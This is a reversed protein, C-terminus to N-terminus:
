RAMIDALILERAKEDRPIFSCSFPDPRSSLTGTFTYDSPKSGGGEGRKINFAALLSAVVIFLTADVVHRGPCIRKGFGFASALNPDDRLSGDTNIFREPKFIDPEPYLTPDHLMAWSNPIVVAGKPIFFGDYIDDKMAAHPLALPTVPRWRLIEKCVADIFPLRPRDEFTPLRDRGIVSDLEDQAKQQIDPYLLMAVFFFKMASATTEAGASFISALAGAITEEAKERESGSLKLREVEQFNELALSPLATGNLISEKVFQLPPYLVENGLNHGIRALPKYSLWPLWEPIHRLCHLYNVLLAGPLITEIAFKNLRQAADLIRDGHEQAKYGYTMRLM